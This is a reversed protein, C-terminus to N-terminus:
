LVLAVDSRSISNSIRDRGRFLDILFQIEMGLIPPLICPRLLPKILLIGQEKRDKFAKNTRHISVKSLTPGTKLIIPMLVLGVRGPVLELTLM